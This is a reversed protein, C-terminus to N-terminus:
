ALYCRLFLDHFKVQVKTSLDPFAADITVVDAAAAITPVPNPVYQPPLPLPLPPNEDSVPPLPPQLAKFISSNKTEEEIMISM